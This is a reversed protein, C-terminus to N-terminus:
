GSDYSKIFDPCLHSLKGRMQYLTSRLNESSNKTNADPWLDRVIVRAPVEKNKLALYGIISWAKMSPYKDLTLSNGDMRVEQNGLLNIHVVGVDQAKEKSQQLLEYNEQLEQLYYTSMSVFALM